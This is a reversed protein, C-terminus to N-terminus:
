QAYLGFARAFNPSSKAVVHCRYGAGPEGKDCMGACASVFFLMDETIFELGPLALPQGVVETAVALRAWDNGPGLMPANSLLCQLWSQGLPAGRLLAAVLELAFGGYNLSAPADAGFRPPLLWTLPIRGRGSATVQVEPHRPPPVPYFYGSGGYFVSHLEKSRIHNLATLYTELFSHQRDDETVRLDEYFNDLDRTTPLALTFKADTYELFKLGYGHMKMFSVLAEAVDRFTLEAEEWGKYSELAQMGPMMTPYPMLRYVIDFCTAEATSTSFRPDALPGLQRVLEWTVYDTVNHPPVDYMLFDQYGLTLPHGVAVESLNYATLSPPWDSTSAGGPLMSVTAYYRDPDDDPILATLGLVVEETIM